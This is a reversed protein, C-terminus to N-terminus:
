MECINPIKLFFMQCKHVESDTKKHRKMHEKSTLQLLIKLIQNKLKQVIELNNLNISDTLIISKCFM